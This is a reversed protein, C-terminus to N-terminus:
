EYVSPCPLRRNGEADRVAFRAGPRISAAGYAGDKRVAYLKVDFSV